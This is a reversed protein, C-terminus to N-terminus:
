GGQRRLCQVWCSYQATCSCPCCFLVTCGMLVADEAVVLVSLLTRWRHFRDGHVMELTLEIPRGLHHLRQPPAVRRWPERITAMATGNGLGPRPRVPGARVPGHPGPSRGNRGDSPCHEQGEEHVHAAQEGDPEALLPSIPPTVRVTSVHGAPHHHGQHRGREHREQQSHRARRKFPQEPLGDVGDCPLSLAQFGADGPGQVVPEPFREAPEPGCAGVALGAPATGFM